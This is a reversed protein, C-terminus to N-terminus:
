ACVCIMSRWPSPTNTRTLDPLSQLSARPSPIEVSITATSSGTAGGDDTVELRIVTDGDPLRVDITAGSGIPQQQNFWRYSAITGDSDSSTPVM